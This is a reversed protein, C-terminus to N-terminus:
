RGSLRIDPGAPLEPVSQEVSLEHAYDGKRTDLESSPVANVEVRADDGDKQYIQTGEVQSSKDSHADGKGEITRKRRRLLFLVLGLLAILAVLAGLVAGAIVGGKTKRGQKKETGETNSSPRQSSTTADSSNEAERKVACGVMASSAAWGDIPHAWGQAGTTSPSWIERRTSGKSDYVVATLEEGQPIDTYCIGGYAPRWSLEPVGTTAFRYGSPCCAIYNDDGVYQTCFNQPCVLPSMAPVKSSGLAGVTTPAISTYSRLFETPYCDGMTRGPFPM